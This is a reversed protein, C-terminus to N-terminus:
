KTTKSLTLEILNENEAICLEDRHLLDDSETVGHGHIETSCQKSRNTTRDECGHNGKRTEAGQITHILREYARSSNWEKMLNRKYRLEDQTHLLALSIYGPQKQAIANSVVYGKSHSVRASLEWSQTWRPQSRTWTVRLSKQQQITSKRNRLPLLPIKVVLSPHTLSVPFTMTWTRPSTM